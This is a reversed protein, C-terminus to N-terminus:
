LACLRADHEATLIVIRADPVAVQQLQRLLTMVDPSVSAVSLLILLAEGLSARLQSVDSFVSPDFDPQVALFYGLAEGLVPLPDFVAVPITECGRPKVNKSAM